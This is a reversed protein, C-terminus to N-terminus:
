MTPIPRTMPDTSIISRRIRPHAHASWVSRCVVLRNPGHSVPESQSSGTEDDGVFINTGAMGSRLETAYLDTDTGAADAHRFDQWCAFIKGEAGCAFAPAVQDANSTDDSVDVGTV